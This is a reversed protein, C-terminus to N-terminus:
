GAQLSLLEQLHQTYNKYRAISHTYLPERVQTFSATNVTRKNSYFELCNQDWDLSCFTLLNNLEEEPRTVLSEYHLEYVPLALFDKWHNMLRTYGEYYAKLATLSHTFSYDGTFDQFYCSLCVDVPNRICHIIRARPFLLQILGLYLFNLQAKDVIRKANSNIEGLYNAAYTDLANRTLGTFPSNSHMSLGLRTAIDSINRLEGAGYVDKHSSLIQETLSTGSRPMGVIFIPQESMNDSHIAIDANNNNFISITKDIYNNFIQIDFTAHKLDNAQRYADFSRDYEGNQDYLKGASFLLASKVSDSLANNAISDEILKIVDGCCDYKKCLFALTTLMLPTVDGSYLYDKLNEWATDQEGSKMLLFAMGAAADRHDPQKTLAKSYYEQARETNGLNNFATGLKTYLDASCDGSNEAKLYYQIGDRIYKLAHCADGLGILAEISDPKLKYLSKFDDIAKQYEGIKLNLVARNAFAQDYSPNSQIASTYAEIANDYRGMNQLLIGYNNNVTPNGPSIELAKKYYKEASSFDNKRIYASGLLNYADVDLPKIVIAKEFYEIAEEIRNLTMLANGINCCLSTNGPELAFALLSYKLSDDVEGLQGCIAGLTSLVYVNNKSSQLIKEFKVRAQQYNGSKLEEEAKKIKSKLLINSKAM